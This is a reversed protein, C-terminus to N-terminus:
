GNGSGFGTGETVENRDYNDLIDTDATDGSTNCTTLTSSTLTCGFINSQNFLNAIKTMLYYTTESGVERDFNIKGTFFHPSTGTTAASAPTAQLAFVMTLAVLAAGAFASVPGRRMMM